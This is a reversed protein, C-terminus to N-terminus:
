TKVYFDESKIISPVVKAIRQNSSRQKLESKQSIKIELVRVNFLSVIEHSITVIGISFLKPKIEFTV